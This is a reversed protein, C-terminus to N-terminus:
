QAFAYAPGPYGMVQVCVTGATRERPCQTGGWCMRGPGSLGVAVEHSLSADGRSQRRCLPLFGGGAFDREQQTAPGAFVDLVQGPPPSGCLGSAVRILRIKGHSDRDRSGLSPLSPTGLASVPSPSFHFPEKCYGLVHEM